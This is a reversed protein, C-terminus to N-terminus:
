RFLLGGFCTSTQQAIEEGYEIESFPKILYWTSMGCTCRLQSPITFRFHRGKATLVDSVLKFSVSYAKLLMELFAPCKRNFVCTGSFDASLVM